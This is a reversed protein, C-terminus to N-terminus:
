DSLGQADVSWASRSSGCATAFSRHLSEPLAMGRNRYDASVRVGPLFDARERYESVLPEADLHLHSSASSVHLLEGRQAAHSDRAGKYESWRAHRAPVSRCFQVAGLAGGM